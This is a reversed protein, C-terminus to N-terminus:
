KNAQASFAVKRSIEPQKGKLMKPFVYIQWKKCFFHIFRM